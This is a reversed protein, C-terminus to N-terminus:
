GFHACASATRRETHGPPDFAATGVPAIVEARGQNWVQRQVPCGVCHAVVPFQCEDSREILCASLLHRAWHGFLGAARTLVPEKEVQEDHM